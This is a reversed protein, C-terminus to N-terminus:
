VMQFQRRVYEAQLEGVFREIDDHARQAHDLVNLLEEDSTSSLRHKVGRWDRLAGASGARAGHVPAPVRREPQATGKDPGIMKLTM